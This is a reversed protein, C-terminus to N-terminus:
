RTYWRNRYRWAESLQRDREAAERNRQWSELLLALSVGVLGVASLVRLAIVAVATTDM